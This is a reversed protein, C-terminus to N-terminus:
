PSPVLNSLGRGIRGMKGNGLKGVSALFYMDDRLINIVQVFSSAGTRHNMKVATQHVHLAESAVPGPLQRRSLQFYRFFSLQKLRGATSSTVSFKPRTHDPESLVKWLIRPTGCCPKHFITIQQNRNTGGANYHRCGSDRAHCQLSSSRHNM